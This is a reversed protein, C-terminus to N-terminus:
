GPFGVGYLVGGDTDADVVFNEPLLSEGSLFGHPLAVQQGPALAVLILGPNASATYGRPLLYMNGVNAGTGSAPGTTLIVQRLAQGPVPPNTYDKPNGVQGALPGSNVALSVPTGATTVTIKGLPVLNPFRPNPM